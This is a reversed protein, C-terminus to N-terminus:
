FEYEFNIRWVRDPSDNNLGLLIGADYKLKHHHALELVGYIMPGAQKEEEALFTELAPQLTPQYRWLLRANVIKEIEAEHNDGFQKEVNINATATLNGWDKELLLGAVIENPEGSILAKEVELLLGFDVSYEGPESLQFINELEIASARTNGEEREFEAVWETLWHPTIARGIELKTQTKNDSNDTHDTIETRVEFETEGAEVHPSYVKAAFVTSSALLSISLVFLHTPIKM